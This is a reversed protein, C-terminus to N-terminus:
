KDGSLSTNWSLGAPKGLKFATRTRESETPLGDFCMCIIQDKISGIFWLNKGIEFFFGRVNIPDVKGTRLGIRQHLMEPKPIQMGQM